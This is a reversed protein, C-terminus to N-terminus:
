VPTGTTGGGSEPHKHTLFTLVGAIFDSATVTGTTVNTGTTTQSGVFDTSPATITVNATSTLIFENLCVIDIDGNAKFHVYSGSLHNGLGVEGPLLNKIPRTAPSDYIAISNSSQGLQQFRLGLSDIPPNHMLGYPKWAIVRKDTAGLGDATTVTVDGSDDTLVLKSFTVIQKIKRLLSKM